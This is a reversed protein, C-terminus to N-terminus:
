PHQARGNGDRENRQAPGGGAGALPADGVVAVVAIAPGPVDHHDVLLVVAEVVQEAAPLADVPEASAVAARALDRRVAATRGHRGCFSTLRVEGGSGTVQLPM